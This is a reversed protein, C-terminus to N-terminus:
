NQEQISEKQKTTPLLPQFIKENLRLKEGSDFNPKPIILDLIDKENENQYTRLRDSKDIEFNKFPSYTNRLAFKICEQEAEVRGKKTEELEPIQDPFATKRKLNLSGAYPRVPRAPTSSSQAAKPRTQTNTQTKPESSQFLGKSKALADANIDVQGGKATAFFGGSSAIFSRNPTTFDVSDGFLGKSKALANSDINVQGGQGTAFFGSSSVAASQRNSDFLNKSKSISEESIAYGKGLGTSFFSKSSNTGSSAISDASPEFLSKSKALANPNLNVQGGKVTSFFGNSASGASQKNSNFLDKSKSISDDSIEYNKGLGTSFFSKSSGVSGSKPNWNQTAKAKAEDSIKVSSGSATSFFGSSPSVTQKAAEQPNIPELNSSTLNINEQSADNESESSLAMEIRHKSQTIVPSPPDSDISSMSDELKESLDEPKQPEKSKTEQKTYKSYKEVLNM